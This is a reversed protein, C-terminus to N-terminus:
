TTMLADTRPTLDYFCSGDRCVNLKTACSLILKMCLQRVGTKSSGYVLLSRPTYPDGFELSHRRIFGLIAFARGVMVDIHESFTIYGNLDNISSLQGLVTEHLMFCSKVLHRSRNQSV